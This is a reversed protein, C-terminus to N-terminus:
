RGGRFRYRGLTLFAAGGAVLIAASITLVSSYSHTRDYAWGFVSAAIAGGLAYFVYISGYISSYKRLGFYRAVLYAVLDSEMGAALGILAIALAAAPYSLQGQALLLCALAPLTLLVFAVLPAWVRDMLWGSALRGAIVSAGILPTLTAARASSFGHQALINEMNPTPGGVAFATTVLAVGMLWFRWDRLAGALTFGEAAEPARPAAPTAPGADAPTDRFYALGVPLAVLIPLLGVAVYAGRWGLAAIWWAVLPKGVIGFVGTGALCIGLALGKRVEFRHNVARTWTIPLTGAGLLGSLSWTVYFQAISGTSLAFAMFSLGFLVLSSLATARVGIRDAVVGVLPVAVLTTVSSVLIGLQIQGFGWHFAKALEPAFLGITYFPIPAAGLTVGLTAALLVPWGSRFEAYGQARAASVRAV